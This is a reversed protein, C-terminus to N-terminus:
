HTWSVACEDPDGHRRASLRYDAGAFGRGGQVGLLAHERRQLPPGCGVGHRHHEGLSNTEGSVDKEHRARRTQSRPLRQIAHTLRGAYTMPPPVFRLSNVRMTDMFEDADVETFPAMPGVTGANAFFVDLRGYRQIADDVVAQVAKDDGADFQRTHIDVVPWSANIEQKHAELNSDDYDCLYM